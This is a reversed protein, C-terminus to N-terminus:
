NGVALLDGAAVAWVLLKQIKSRTPQDPALVGQNLDVTLKEGSAALHIYDTQAGAAPAPSAGPAAASADTTPLVYMEAKVLVELKGVGGGASLDVVYAAGAAANLTKTVM